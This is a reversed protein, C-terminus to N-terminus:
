SAQMGVNKMAISREHCTILPTQRHNILNAMAYLSLMQFPSSKEARAPPQPPSHGILLLV